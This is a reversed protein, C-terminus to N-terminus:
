AYVKAEMGQPIPLPTPETSGLGPRQGTEWRLRHSGLETRGRGRHERERGDQRDRGRNQYGSGALCAQGLTHGPSARLPGGRGWKSGRQKLAVGETGGGSQTEQGGRAPQETGYLLM